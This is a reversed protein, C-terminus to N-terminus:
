NKIFNTTVFNTSTTVLHLNHNVFPWVSVEPLISRRNGAAGHFVATIILCNNKNSKYVNNKVNLILIYM